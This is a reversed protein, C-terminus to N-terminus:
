LEYVETTNFYADAQYFTQKDPEHGSWDFRSKSSEPISM